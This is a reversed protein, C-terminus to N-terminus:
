NISLHRSGGTAKKPLTLKLVGGDYRAESKGSDVETPLSFSRYAKGSYRESYLQKENDSSQERTIEASITVQNGDVSVDVNEKKVGPMDVTIRYAKDDETIDMRMEMANEDQRSLPRLAMGRFLDEFDGLPDFRNMQRFPNWRTPLNM